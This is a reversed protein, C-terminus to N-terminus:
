YECGSVDIQDDWHTDREKQRKINEEIANLIKNTRERPRVLPEVPAPSSSVETSPRLKQWKPPHTSRYSHSCNPMHCITGVSIAYSADSPRPRKLVRERDVLLEEDERTGFLTNMRKFDAVVM